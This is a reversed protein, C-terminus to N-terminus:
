GSVTTGTSSILINQITELSEEVSYIATSSLDERLKVLKEVDESSCSGVTTQIIAESLSVVKESSPAEIVTSKM